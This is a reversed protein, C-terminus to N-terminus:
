RERPPAEAVPQPVLTAFYWIPGPTVDHLTETAHGALELRLRYPRLPLDAVRLTGTADTIWRTPEPPEIDAPGDDGPVAAVAVGALPAGWPTEVRLRLPAGPALRLEVAEMPAQAEAARASWARGPAHALVEVAGAPLPGVRARGEANTTARVEVRMGGVVARGVITAERVPRGRQDLVLVPVRLGVEFTVERPGASDNPDVRLYAPAHEASEVVIEAQGAAPVAVRLVGDPDPLLRQLVGADEREGTRATAADYRVQAGVISATTGGVDRARVEIRRGAPALLVETAGPELRTRTRPRGPADVELRAEALVSAPVRAQLRAPRPAPTRPLEWLVSGDAALLRAGEIEAPQRTTPDLM